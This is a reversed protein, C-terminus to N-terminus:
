LILLLLIGFAWHGTVILTVAGALTLAFLITDKKHPDTM